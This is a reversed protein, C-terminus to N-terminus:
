NTSVNKDYVQYTNGIILDGRGFLEYNIYKLPETCNVLIEVDSKVTPKDTLITAQIFTNSASVAAPIPPM